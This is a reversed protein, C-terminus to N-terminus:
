SLFAKIAATISARVAHDAMGITWAAGKAWKSQRESTDVQNRSMPELFSRFLEGMGAFPQDLDALLGRRQLFRVAPEDPDLTAEAAASCLLRLYPEGLRELRISWTRALEEFSRDAAFSMLKLRLEGSSGLFEPQHYLASGWHQLHHPVLGLLHIGFSRESESLEDGSRASAERLFNDAEELTFPGLPLDVFVNFLPPNGVEDAPLITPIQSVAAGVVHGTEMLARIFGETRSDPKESSRFFGDLDNIFLGIRTGQATHRDLVAFLRSVGDVKAKRTSTYGLQRDLEALIWTAIEESTLGPYGYHDLWVVLDLGLLDLTHASEELLSSKGIRSEGTILVSQAAGLRRRLFTLERSRGYFDSGTVRRGVVFANASM